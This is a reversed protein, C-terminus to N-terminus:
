HKLAFSQAAQIMDRLSIGSVYNGFLTLERPRSTSTRLEKIAQTRSGNYRPLAREWAHIRMPAEPWGLRQLDQRVVDQAGSAGPVIFTLGTRGQFIERNFLVGLSRIGSARPFLYGFTRQTEIPSPAEVLTSQLPLYHVGALARAGDPWITRVLEAASQADACIITNPRLAFPGQYNLHIEGSISDALAHIFESMGKPFSVSRARPGRLSRLARFYRGERPIQPWLATVTLEDAGSGYIGQLAPSLLAEVYPGLLPRFFDSVRTQDDIRPAKLWLRVVLRLLLPLSMPSLARGNWLRRKLKPTAPLVTLGLSSLWSEIAETAYIANPGEEIVGEALAHSQIKGGVRHSKEYVDVTYGRRSLFHGMLLGSVGAGWIHVDRIAPDIDGIPGSM